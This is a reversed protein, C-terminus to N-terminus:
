INLFNDANIHTHEKSMSLMLFLVWVGITYKSSREVGEVYMAHVTYVTLIFDSHWKIYTYERMNVTDIHSAMTDKKYVYM